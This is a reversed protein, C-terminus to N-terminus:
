RGSVLESAGAGAAPVPVGDPGGPVAAVVRDRGTAKATYLAHDAAEVLERTAPLAAVTVVVVPEIALLAASRRSLRWSPDSVTHFLVWAGGVLLGLSAMLLAPHAAVVADSGLAYVAADALSWTVVGAMTVALATAAPTRDRRRWALVGTCAAVVAACAFVLAWQTASM